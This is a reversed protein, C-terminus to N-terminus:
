IVSPKVERLKGTAACNEWISIEDTRNGSVWVM